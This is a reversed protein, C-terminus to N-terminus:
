KKTILPLNHTQFIQQHLVHQRFDHGASETEGDQVRNNEPDGIELAAASMIGGFANPLPQRGGAPCPGGNEFPSAERESGDASGADNEDQEHQDIREQPTGDDTQNQAKNEATLLKPTAYQISSIRSIRSAVM